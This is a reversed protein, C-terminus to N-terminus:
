GNDKALEKMLEDYKAKLAADSKIANRIKNFTAAGVYDKALSQLTTNIKKTEEDRRAIIEKM